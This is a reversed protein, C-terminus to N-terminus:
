LAHERLRHSQETAQVRVFKRASDVPIVAEKRVHDPIDQTLNDCDKNGWTCYSDFSTLNLNPHIEIM